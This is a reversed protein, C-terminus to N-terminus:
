YNQVGIGELSKSKTKTCPNQLLLPLVRAGRLSQRKYVDGARRATIQYPVHKGSAKEFAAVMELVSYGTGTGLNFVSVGGQKELYNLAKLHGRALDVVHIYDRVGTGSDRICMKRDSYKRNYRDPVCIDIMKHPMKRSKIECVHVIMICYFRPLVRGNKYGLRLHGGGRKPLNRNLMESPTIM